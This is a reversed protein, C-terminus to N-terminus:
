HEGQTMHPPARQMAQSNNERQVKKRKPTYTKEDEVHMHGAGYHLTLTEGGGMLASKM